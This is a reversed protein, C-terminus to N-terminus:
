RAMSLDTENYRIYRMFTNSRLSGNKILLPSVGLQSALTAGGIRLSHTDLFLNPFCNKILSSLKNRTLFSGDSFIFLPGLVSGRVSLFRQLAVVPCFVSDLSTLQLKFGEKFPDTKSCKINLVYDGFDGQSVDQLGLESSPDWVRSSKMTYESSRLLSFFAITVSAKLMLADFNNMRCSIFNCFMALNNLTFPQRVPRSFSRGQVRRIGRLVYFLRKM